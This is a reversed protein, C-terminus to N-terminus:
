SRKHKWIFQLIIKALEKSFTMPIKIPIANFPCQRPYYSWNLPILEELGHACYIKGNIQLSLPETMVSVKHCWPSYGVLSETWPIRWALISFHYGNGEGASRGSGHILGLDGANCAYEKSESGGPFGGNIQTM